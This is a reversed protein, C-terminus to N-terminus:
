TANMISNVIWDFGTISAVRRKDNELSVLAAVLREEVADLSDFVLNQFWKERIEDWLNEVPNLQPSYAPLFRLRMNDPVELAHAQHWGAGDMFMLIFEDPHRDAVEALFIAMAGTNVEPLILSDMTGDQPSVAAYAYIFERVLQAPVDPRLGSPAWCRQPNNIRGFRAEDQFMLRLQRQAAYQGIM